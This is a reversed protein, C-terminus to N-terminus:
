RKIIEPRIFVEIVAVAAEISDDKDGFRPLYIGPVNLGGQVAKVTVKGVPLCKAISEADVKEPNSVAVTATIFVDKDLDLELLEWLGCLCSRSVADKVAKQAAKNVDQGHFDM